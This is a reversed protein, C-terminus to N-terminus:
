TPGQWALLLFVGAHEALAAAGQPPSFDTSRPLIHEVFPSYTGGGCGAEVFVEQLPAELM